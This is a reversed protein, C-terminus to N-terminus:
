IMYKKKDNEQWNTSYFEDVRYNQTLIEDKQGIVKKFYNGTNTIKYCLIRM